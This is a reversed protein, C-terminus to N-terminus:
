PSQLVLSATTEAGHADRVKLEVVLSEGPPPADLTIRVEDNCPPESPADPLTVNTPEPVITWLLSVPDREPDRVTAVLDFRTGPEPQAPIARLDVVPPENEVAPDVVEIVTVGPAGTVGESTAEVVLAIRDGAAVEPPLDITVFLGGASPVLEALPGVTQTWAYTVPSSAELAGMGCSAAGLAGLTLPNDPHVRVSLPPAVDLAGVTDPARVAVQAVASASELLGDWAVLRFVMWESARRPAVITLLDADAGSLGDVPPGGVQAWRLRVGDGNSDTSASGDLVFSEGAMVADPASLVALPAQAGDPAADSPFFVLHDPASALGDREATLRYIVPGLTTDTLHLNRQSSPEAAVREWRPELGDALDLVDGEGPAATEPDEVLRDPGARVVPARRGDDTAVVEIRVTDRTRWVGDDAILAFVVTAPDIPAVWTPRPDHRNSLNVAPGDIQEWYVSFTRGMPHITAAGDLQQITGRLAIRDPGANALPPLTVEPGAEGLTGPLGIGGACAVTALPLLLHYSRSLM